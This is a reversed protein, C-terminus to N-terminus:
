CPCKGVKGAQSPFRADICHRHFQKETMMTQEPHHQQMHQVYTQYDHVGVMLRFSKAIQQVIFKVNGWLTLAQFNVDVKAQYKVVVSHRIFPVGMTLQTTQSENILQFNHLM